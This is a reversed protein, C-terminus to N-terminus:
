GSAETWRVWTLGPHDDRGLGPRRHRPVADEASRSPPASRGGLAPTSRARARGPPHPAPGAPIGDNFCSTCPGTPGPRWALSAVYAPREDTSRASPAADLMTAFRHGLRQPHFADAAAFAVSIGRGDAKERAVGPGGGGRPRGPGLRSRPATCPTTVQGAAPTPCRGAFAGEAPLRVVAPEPQGVCWPAPGDHFVAGPGGRGGNTAPRREAVSPDAVPEQDNRCWGGNVCNPGGVPTGSGARETLPRTVSRCFHRVDDSPGQPVSVAILSARQRYPAADDDSPQGPGPLARQRERERGLGAQRDDM